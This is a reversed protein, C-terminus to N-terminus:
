AQLNRRLRRSESSYGAKKMEQLVDCKLMNIHICLNIDADFDSMARLVEDADVKCAEELSKIEELTGKREAATMFEIGFM